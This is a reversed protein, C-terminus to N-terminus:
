MVIMATFTAEAVLTEKVYAEGIFRWVNERCRDKKVCLRLVDGPEV